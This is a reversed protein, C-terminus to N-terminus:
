AAPRSGRDARAGRARPSVGRERLLRDGRRGRAGQERMAIDVVNPLIGGHVFLKDHDFYAASVILGPTARPAVGGRQNDALTPVRPVGRRGSRRGPGRLSRPQGLTWVIRGGLRHAQAALRHIFDFVEQLHRGHGVDGTFVLTGEPAFWQDSSDIFGLARLVEKLADLEGHVDGVVGMRKTCDTLFESVDRHAALAREVALDQVVVDEVQLVHLEYPALGFVFGRRALDEGSRVYTEGTLLDRLHYHIAPDNQVDVEPPLRLRGWHKVLRPADDAVNTILVLPRDQYVKLGARFQALPREDNMGLVFLARDYVADPAPAALISHLLRCLPHQLLTWLEAHLVTNIGRAGRQRWTRDFRDLSFAGHGQEIGGSAAHFERVVEAAGAAREQSVDPSAIADEQIRWLAWRTGDRASRLLDEISQRGAHAPLPDQVERGGGSVEIVGMHPDFIKFREAEGSGTIGVNLISFDLHSVGYRWLDHM